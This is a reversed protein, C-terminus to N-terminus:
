SRGTLAGFLKVAVKMGGKVDRVLETGKCWPPDAINIIVDSASVYDVLKWLFIHALLTSLHYHEERDFTKPDDFSPLLLNAHGNPSKAALSLAANVITLRAAQGGPSGKPRSPRLLLIALLMTSLYNVQLCEGHDTSKATTFNLRTVGANLLVIDIRSLQSEVRRAFATISDYL